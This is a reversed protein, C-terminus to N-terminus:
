HAQQPQKLPPSARFEEFFVQLFEFNNIALLHDLDATHFGTQRQLFTCISMYSMEKTQVYTHLKQLVSQIGQEVDHHFVRLSIVIVDEHKVCQHTHM